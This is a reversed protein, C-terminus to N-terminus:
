LLDLAQLPGIAEEPGVVSGERSRRTVAAGMATLPQWPGFPADSGAAVTVGNELLSHVPYLMMQDVSAPDRLYREGRSELFGPQTVVVIGADAMRRVLSLSCESAHEVRKVAVPRRIGEFATVAAEVAEREVAHIATGPAGEEMSEHILPSLKEPPPWIRGGSMTLMLKTLGPRVGDVPGVGAGHEGPALMVTTKPAFVGGARLHRYTDLRARTNRHGADTVSTVGASVLAESAARAASRLAAEDHSPMRKAVYDNMELLLGTPEGTRPDRAITGGPPEDTELGIGVAALGVSNLVLAHGGAHTLRVPRDPIAEDLDTKTPHRGEVIQREDYGVADLWGRRSVSPAAERLQDLIGPISRAKEPGCDVAFLHFGLALPHCHADVFGPLVTKGPLPHVRAGPPTLTGPPEDHGTWVVRGRAVIMASAIPLFPDLTLIRADRVILGTVIESVECNWM